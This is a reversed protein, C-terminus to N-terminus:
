AESLTLFRPLTDEGLTKIISPMLGLSALRIPPGGDARARKDKDQKAGSGAREQEKRYVVDVPPCNM